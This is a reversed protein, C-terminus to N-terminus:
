NLRVMMKCTLLREFFHKIIKRYQRNGLGYILPNLCSKLEVMTVIISYWVVPVSCHDILAIVNVIAAPFWCIIYAIFILIMLKTIQYEQKSLSRSLAPRASQVNSKHVNVHLNYSTTSEKHGQGDSEKHTEFAIRSNTKVGAQTDITCMNVDLSIMSSNHVKGSKENSKTKFSASQKIELNELTISPSNQEGGTDHSKNRKCDDNKTTVDDTHQLSKVKNADNNGEQNKISVASGATYRNQSILSAKMERNHTRLVFFLKTYSITLVPFAVGIVFVYFISRFVRNDEQWDAFCVGHALSFKYVGVGMFPLLSFLVAFSFILVFAIKLRQETLFRSRKTWPMIVLYRICAIMALVMPHFFFTFASFVATLECLPQPLYNTLTFHTYVKPLMVITGRMLDTIALLIVARNNLNRVCKNCAFVLIIASNGFIVFISLILTVSANIRYSLDSM